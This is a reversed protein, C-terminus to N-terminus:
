SKLWAEVSRLSAINRDLRCLECNCPEDGGGVCDSENEVYREEYYDELFGVAESVITKPTPYGHPWQNM